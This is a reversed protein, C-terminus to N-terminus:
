GSQLLDNSFASLLFAKRGTGNPIPVQRLLFCIHQILRGHM